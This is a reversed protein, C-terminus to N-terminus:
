SKSTIRILRDNSFDLDLDRKEIQGGNIQNTYVYSWHDEDFTDGLVPTGIVKAVQEKSMGVHLQQIQKKELVNGQQVDIEYPKFPGCGTLALLMIILLSIKYKAM